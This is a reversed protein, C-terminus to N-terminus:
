TRVVVGTGFLTRCSPDLHDVILSFNNPSFDGIVLPWPLGPLKEESYNYTTPEGSYLFEKDRLFTLIMLAMTERIKQQKCGEYDIQGTRTDALINRTIVIRYTADVKIDGFAEQIRKFVNLKTGIDPMSAIISLLTNINLGKPITLYAIGKKNEIALSLGKKLKPIEVKKDIPPEDEVSLGYLILDVYNKWVSGDLVKIRPSIEKLNGWAEYDAALRSWNKNVYLCNALDTLKLWNFIRLIVDPMQREGSESDFFAVPDQYIYNGSGVIAASSEM